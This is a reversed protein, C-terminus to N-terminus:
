SGVGHGDNQERASDLGAVFLMALGTMRDRLIQNFDNRRDLDESLRHRGAFDLFYEGQAGDREAEVFEIILEVGM